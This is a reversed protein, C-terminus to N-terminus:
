RDAHQYRMAAVEDLLRTEARGQELQYDALQRQYLKELMQVEREASILAERAHDVASSAAAQLESLVELESRLAAEFQQGRVLSEVTLAGAARMARSQQQAAILKAHLAQRQSELRAQEALTLALETRRADRESKRLSAVSDLRFVFANM